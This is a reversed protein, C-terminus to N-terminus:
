PTCVCSLSAANADVPRPPTCAAPASFVPVCVARCHLTQQLAPVCCANSSLVISVTMPADPLNSRGDGDWAMRFRAHDDDDM